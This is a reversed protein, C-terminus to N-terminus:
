NVLLVVTSKSTSLKYEKLYTTGALAWLIEEAEEKLDEMDVDWSVLYYGDGSIVKPISLRVSECEAIIDKKSLFHKAM